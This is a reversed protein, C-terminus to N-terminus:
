YPLAEDHARQTLTACADEAILGKYGHESAVSGHGPHVYGHLCRHPVGTIPRFPM